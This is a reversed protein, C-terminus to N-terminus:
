FNLSYKNKGISCIKGQLEYELLITLIIPFPLDLHQAIEELSVPTASLLNLVAQRNKDNLLSEDVARFIPVFKVNSGEEEAAYSANTNLYELIEESSELLQAGDKILKNSGKCRPDLPFGPCAFVERNQELAFKATILSGSSLGAEIIVVAHSLGSIIRNRQPFHRALPVSGIPLEALLLGNQAIDAYLRHNEPPYINDIGGAIVSITNPMSSEHAVTDIGRALGSCIAVDYKSLENAIKAAMQKGSISCNRSGVISVVKSQMLEINGKYSLIPPCNDISGLLRSYKADQYTILNADLKMLKEIEELATSQTCIKIKGRSRKIFEPLHELAANPNGYYKVLNHFTKPGINDSRILRLINVLTDDEKYSTKKLISLM